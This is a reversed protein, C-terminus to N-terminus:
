AGGQDAVELVKTITRRNRATVEVGLRRDTILKALPSRALGQPHWAYVERGHVAVREPAVDASELDRVRDPDPAASLFSVQLLRPDHAEGGFPDRALVAALEDRGRLLVATELGFADRLRAQLDRELEAAALTSALVVNGSQLVTRVDRYGAQELSARLGGMPVRRSPGLNIGRLFAIQVAM